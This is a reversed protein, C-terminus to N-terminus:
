GHIDSDGRQVPLRSKEIGQRGFIGGLSVFITGLAVVLSIEDTLYGGVASCMAAVLPWTTKQRYWPVLQKKLEKEM